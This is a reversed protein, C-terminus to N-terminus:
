IEYAGSAPSSYLKIQQMSFVIELPTMGAGYYYEMMDSYAYAISVM